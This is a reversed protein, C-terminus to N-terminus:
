LFEKMSEGSKRLSLAYDDHLRGLLRLEGPVGWQQTPLM